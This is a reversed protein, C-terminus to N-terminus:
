GGTNWTRITTGRSRESATTPSRSRSGDAQLRTTSGPTARRGSPSTIRTSRARSSAEITSASRRSSSTSWWPDIETSSTSKWSESAISRATCRASPEGASATTQSSTTSRVDSSASSVQDNMAKMSSAASMAATPMKRFEGIRMTPAITTPGSNPGMAPKQTATTWRRPRRAAREKTVSAIPSGAAASMLRIADTIKRAVPSVGSVNSAPDWSRDLIMALGSKKAKKTANQAPAAPISDSLVAFDPASIPTRIETVV